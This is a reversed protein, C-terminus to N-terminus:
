ITELLISAELPNPLKDARYIGDRGMFIIVIDRFYVNTMKTIKGGDNRNFLIMKLPM